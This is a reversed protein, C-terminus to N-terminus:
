NQHLYQHQHNNLVLLFPMALKHLCHWSEQADKSVKHDQLPAHYVSSPNFFLFFGLVVTHRAHLIRLRVATRRDTRKAITSNRSDM